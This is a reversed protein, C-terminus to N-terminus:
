AHTPGQTKAIAEAALRKMREFAVQAEQSIAVM